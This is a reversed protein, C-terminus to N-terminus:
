LARDILAAIQAKPAAGVMRDIEKGDKFVLLAPISMVGYQMALEGESDVDLKYVKAKGAYETALQEISPGIAKCPGCWEAWFDVLVPVDSKLVNQEFEKATVALNAAM